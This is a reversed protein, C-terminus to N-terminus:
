KEIGVLTIKFKLTKGCMPHNFDLTVTDKDVDVIKILGYQTPLKVWKELKYWAKEFQELSSKPVKQYNKESCEWYADKPECTIEKTEWVKMGEVAKEFCPIMQWKGLTFKLPKYERAANYINNEKAVKEESTDFVKWDPFFWVYDVLVTDWVKAVNDQSMKKTNSQLNWSSVSNKEEITNHSNLNLNCGWLLFFLLVVFIKKM